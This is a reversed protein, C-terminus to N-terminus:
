NYARTTTYVYGNTAVAAPQSFPGCTIANVSGSLSKWDGTMENNLKYVKNDKSVAYVLGENCVTLDMAKINPIYNYNVGDYRFVKGEDTAVIPNGDINVDIAAAGGEIRYWFCKRQDGTKNTNYKSPRFRICGRNCQCKCKSKCFLKWIGYGGARADCGIKWVESGRGVGIDNSCGPLQVWKNYCNLYYTGLCGAVVYPTGEADVDVRTITNLDTDAVVESYSNALFNYVYLRGDSGVSYMDGEAGLGVDVFVQSTTQIWNANYVLTATTATAATATITADSTVAGIIAILIILTSTKM